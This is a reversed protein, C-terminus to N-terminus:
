GGGGGGSGDGFLVDNGASGSLTDNDGGGDGGLGSRNYNTSYDGAGGGGSGDGALYYGYSGTQALPASTTQSNSVYATKNGAEDSVVVNFYYLSDGTLGAATYSVLSTLASGTLRTGNNSCDAITAINNSASRYVDYTLAGQASIDDTAATWSLNITSDTVTGFSITGGGGATPATSDPLGWKAFLTIDDTVTDSGFLWLNTLVVEKYWGNFTFGGKTPVAPTAVYGGKDVFQVPISSGGDTDFTVYFGKYDLSITLTLAEGAVLDVTSSGAFLTNGGSDRAELLFTRGNGSPVTLQIVTGTFVQSIAAMDAATVTLKFSVVDAPATRSAGTNVTVNAGGEPQLNSLFDCSLISLLILLGTLVKKVDIKM